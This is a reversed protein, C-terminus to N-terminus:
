RAGEAGKNFGVMKNKNEDYLKLKILSPIDSIYITNIPIDRFCVHHCEALHYLPIMENLHHIHHYGISGSVWHLLYPMKLYSSAGLGKQVKCIKDRRTMLVNEFNHHVYNIISSLVLCLFLPLFYALLYVKLGMVCLLLGHCLILMINTLWIAVKLKVVHAVSYGLSPVYFRMILFAAVPIYFCFQCIASRYIRYTMKKIFSLAQYEDVTYYYVDELGRKDIYSLNKHHHTHIKKLYSYCFFLLLSLGKGVYLNLKKSSFYSLHTCDHVITYIRGFCATSIFISVFANIYYAHHWCLITTAMSLVLLLMTDILIFWAKYDDAFAYDKIQRTLQRYSM